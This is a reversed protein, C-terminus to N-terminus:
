VYQCGRERCSARGIKTTSYVVVHAGHDFPRCILPAATNDVILPIGLEEGIRAVGRIPFPVLKPNPLTEGFFARTRGDAARRFADPDAPDVFRAEIGM